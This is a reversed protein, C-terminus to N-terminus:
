QKAAPKNLPTGQKNISFEWEAKQQVVPGGKPIVHHRQAFPNKCGSKRIFLKTVGVVM